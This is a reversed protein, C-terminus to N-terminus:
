IYINRAHNKQTSYMFCVVILIVAYIAMVYLGTDDVIITDM